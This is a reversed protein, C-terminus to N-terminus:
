DPRLNLGTNISFSSFHLNKYILLGILLQVM